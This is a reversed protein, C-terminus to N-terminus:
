IHNYKNIDATSENLWLEEPNETHKMVNYEKIDFIFVMLAPRM